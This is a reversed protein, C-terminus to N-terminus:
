STQCRCNRRSGAIMPRTTVTPRVRACRPRRSAAASRSGACGAAQTGNGTWSAAGRCPGATCTNPRRASPALQCSAAASISTTEARRGGGVRGGVRLQPRANAGEGSARRTVRQPEFVQRDVGDDQQQERRHRGIDRRQDERARRHALRLHDDTVREPRATGAHDRLDDGFPEHQGKGGGHEPEDHGLRRHAIGPGPGTLDHPVAQREPHITVSSGAVM